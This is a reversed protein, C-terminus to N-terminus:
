QARNVWTQALRSLDEEPEGDELESFYYEEVRNISTQLEVAQENSIGNHERINKLLTLVTFPNIEEPIAFRGAEAETPRTMFWTGVGAGTLVVVILPILWYLFKWSFSSYNKELAVTQEAAVLDADDYRQYVISVDEMKSGAFTFNEVDGGDERAKYEVTWSRDSLIQIDNSEKDFAAPLVGQDDINVIEFNERELDIIEKLDPILGRGSASVEVILKGEDAQREDLTQTVTLETVPRQTGRKDSADVVVAPSEVPIVVYGSTDLFDLDLKLPAVRDIESGRPKLLIYAYPTIRWGPQAAPRSQMTDPSQFTVNLIEFHEGLAQNVTDNFKDRYDETPRGYNYAYMMSNQNQVYKGFGGSEREIESTHLINVYIGFPQTHGVNDDGDVSVTLKIESVLDKYYDYLNRAEWARPHDGVIEFGGRLYRFKIEPKIASMRTFLNNAFKSMHMEAMNGPLENIADRVKKYQRLDPVTKDTIKGLDCAGMAAYFWFDYVDTKQDPKELTASVDRYKEAALRFQEFAQDRRDSFESTKQVTQSYANQDYMLCALALQPEWSEPSAQIAELALQLAVTYGRLVEQQVEPERRNTQRAEQQRIDRWNSGLNERMKQCIAAVTEPKLDGLDGFVSRVRDLEFVEASSHCSTFANALLSEDIDEINLERIRNVWGTLEQLNREQKSRTLPIAEAKQDFGYFYIYPNRQRKDTNPDHNRTWIRLFEHILDKAIEPHTPAIEEIYPFAKDEENIRLHLNALLKRLQTHLSASVYQQWAKSPAVELMDGLKIPRPQRQGGYRRNIDDMNQWYYNGYMDIQMYTQRSNERSYRISIEAEAIWTRALLTLAQNWSAATEPSVRILNEVAENQLRLLKLRENESTQVAQNVMTASRTGLNTLITMGREPMETFSANMWAVGIEKEVQPSLQILNSLAADKDTPTIDELAVIMQNITWAKELWEAVRDEAYRALALQSWLKLATVDKQTAEDDLLPLFQQVYDTLGSKMLLDAATLRKLPDDSGFHSTGNEIQEVFRNFDHGAKKSNRILTAIAAIHSAGGSKSTAGTAAGAQAKLQALAEPPLDDITMGPPLKVGPPLENEAVEGSTEEEDDAAATQLPEVLEATVEMALGDASVSGTLKGDKITGDVTATMNSEPDTISAHFAGTESDFTGSDFTLTQSNASMTGSVTGDKLLMQITFARMDEPMGDMLLRGVWRGSVGDGLNGSNANRANRSIRIPRPAAETLQLIDDPTLFSAPPTQGSQQMQAAMQAAVEPPVGDPVAPGATALSKLVHAYVKDADDPKMGALFARVEAWQALTVNRVFADVKEKPSPKGNEKTEESRAVSLEVQQGVSVEVADDAGEAIGVHLTQDDSLVTSVARKVIDLHRYKVKRGALIVVATKEENADLQEQVYAAVDKELAEISEGACRSDETGSDGKYVIPLEGEAAEICLTISEEESPSEPYVAKPMSVVTTLGDDKAEDQTEDNESSQAEEDKSSESEGVETGKGEPEPLSQSENVPATDPASAKEDAQILNAVVKKGDATLVTARGIEADEHMLVITDNEKLGTEAQIEFVVLGEYVNVVKGSWSKPTSAEPKRAKKEAPRHSWAKLVSETTRDFKAALLLELLKKDPSEKERAEKGDEPKADPAGTANPASRPSEQVVAGQVPSAAPSMRVGRVVTQAELTTVDAFLFIALSLALLRWTKARVAM